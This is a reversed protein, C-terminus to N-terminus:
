TRSTIETIEKRLECPPSCPLAIVNYIHVYTITAGPLLTDPQFVLQIVYSVKRKMRNMGTSRIQYMFPLPNYTNYNLLVNVVRLQTNLPQIYVKATSARPHPVITNGGIHVKFQDYVECNIKFTTRIV